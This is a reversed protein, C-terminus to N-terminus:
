LPVISEDYGKKPDICQADDDYLRQVVHNASSFKILELMVFEQSRIERPNRTKPKAAMLLNPAGLHKYSPSRGASINFKKCSGFCCLNTFMCDGLFM